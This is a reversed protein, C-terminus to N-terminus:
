TKSSLVKRMAFKKEGNSYQEPKGVTVFGFALYLKLARGNSERVNLTLAGVCKREASEQAAELLTRGLGNGRYPEDVGMREVNFNDDHKKLLIYGAIEANSALVFGFRNKLLTRDNKWPRLPPCSKEIRIITAVDAAVVRRPAFVSMDKSRPSAM